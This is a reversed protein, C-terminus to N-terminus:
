LESRDVKGRQKFSKGKREKRTKMTKEEHETIEKGKRREGM